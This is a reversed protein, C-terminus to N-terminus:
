DVCRRRALVERGSLTPNGGLGSERAGLGSDRDGFNIQVFGGVGFTKYLLSVASRM